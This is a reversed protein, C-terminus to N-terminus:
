PDVNRILVRVDNHASLLVPRRSLTAEECFRVNVLHDVKCLVVFVQQGM